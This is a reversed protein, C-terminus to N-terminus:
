SIKVLSLARLLGAHTDHTRKMSELWKACFEARESRESDFKTASYSTSMYQALTDSWFQALREALNKELETGVSWTDYIAASYIYMAMDENDYYIWDNSKCIREVIELHAMKSPISQKFYLDNKIM